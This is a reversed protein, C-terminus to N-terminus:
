RDLEAVDHGAVLWDDVGIKAGHVGEPLYVIEVTANRRYVAHCFRFLADAVAAKRTVDSDFVARVRRHALAIDDFDPVVLKGHLFQYVGDLSVCPLGRSWLADAKKKGETFYLPVSADRLLPRADPHIDLLSQGDQMQEYKVPKGDRWRPADPKLLGGRQVGALTWTPLFLGARAQYPAFGLARAEDATISRYGRRAIVAPDIGSGVVLEDYHRPSLTM